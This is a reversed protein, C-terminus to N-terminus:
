LKLNPLGAKLVSLQETLKDCDKYYKMSSACEQQNEKFGIQKTLDKVKEELKGIGNICYDKSIKRRKPSGSQDTPNLRKSRLKGKKYQYGDEDM